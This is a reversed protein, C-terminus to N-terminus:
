KPPSVFDETTSRSLLPKIAAHLGLHSLPPCVEEGVFKGGIDGRMARVAVDFRTAGFDNLAKGTREDM